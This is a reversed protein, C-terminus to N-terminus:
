QNILSLVAAAYRKGLLLQAERSFHLSDGKHTLDTASVCALHPITKSAQQLVANIALSNGKWNGVEGVVVPLDPINVDSRFDSVLESLSELYKDAKNRDSEGQHWIMGVLTGKKMAERVREITKDYYDGGKKWEQISSGGRANVLVGVSDLVVALEHAMSWAPGMQQISIDKRINAYKNLPPYAREWTNQDNWIRIYLDPSLTDMDEPLLDGRGAMNSQGMCVIFPLFKPAKKTCQFLLVSLAAFLWFRLFDNKNM